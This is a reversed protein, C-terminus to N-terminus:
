GSLRCMGLKAAPRKGDEGPCSMSTHIVSATCDEEEAWQSVKGETNLPMPKLIQMGAKVLDATQQVNEREVVLESENGPFM